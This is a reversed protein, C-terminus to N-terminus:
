CDTHDMFGTPRKLSEMECEMSTLSTVLLCGLFQKILYHTRTYMYIVIFIGSHINDSGMFSHM